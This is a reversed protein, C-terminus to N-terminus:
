RGIVGQVWRAILIAAKVGYKAVFVLGITAAGAAIYATADTTDPQAVQAFASMPLLASAGVTGVVAVVKDLKNM